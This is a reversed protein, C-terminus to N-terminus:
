EGCFCHLLNVNQRQGYYLCNCCVDTQERSHEEGLLSGHTGDASLVM